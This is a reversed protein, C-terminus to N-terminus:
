VPPRKSKRSAGPRVKAEQRLLYEDVEWDSQELANPPPVLPLATGTDANRAEIFANVSERTYRIVRNNIKFMPLCGSRTLAAVTAVSVNLHKAVQERTLPSPISNM